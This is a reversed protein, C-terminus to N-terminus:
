SFGPDCGALHSVPWAPCLGTWRPICPRSRSCCRTSGIWPRSSWNRRTPSPACRTSSNASSAAPPPTSSRPTPSATRGCDRWTAPPSPAPTKAVRETFAMMATEAPELGAIAALQEPGYFQRRLITGHALRCYSSHLARAAALTVLEYRRLDMHGRISALLGSWAGMVEPRLSFVKAYNPVYGLNAQAREYMARVEGTAQDVPVTEIFAIRIRRRYRVPRPRQRDAHPTRRYRAPAMQGAWCPRRVRSGTPPLCWPRNVGSM